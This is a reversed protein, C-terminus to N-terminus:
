IDKYYIWKWKFVYPFNNKIEYYFIFKEIHDIEDQFTRLKGCNAKLIYQGEENQECHPPRDICVFNVQYKNKKDEYWEYSNFTYYKM